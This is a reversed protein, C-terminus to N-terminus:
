IKMLIFPVPPMFEYSFDIFKLYNLNDSNYFGIRQYQRRQEQKKPKLTQTKILCNKESICCLVM